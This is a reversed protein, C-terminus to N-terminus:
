SNDLLELGKGCFVVRGGGGETLFSERESDSRKGERGGFLVLDRGTRARGWGANNEGGFRVRGEHSTAEGM